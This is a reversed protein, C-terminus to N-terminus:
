KKNIKAKAKKLFEDTEDTLQKDLIFFELMLKVIKQLDSPIQPDLYIEVTGDKLEVAEYMDNEVADFFNQVIRNQDLSEWDGVLEVIDDGFYRFYSKLPKKLQEKLM